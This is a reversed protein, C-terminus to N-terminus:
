YVSQSVYLPTSMSIPLLIQKEKYVLMFFLKRNTPRTFLSKITMRLGNESILISTTDVVIITTFFLFWGSWTFSAESHTAASRYLRAARELDQPDTGHQSLCSSYSDQVGNAPRLTAQSLLSSSVSSSNFGSGILFFIYM